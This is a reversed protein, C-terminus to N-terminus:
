RVARILRKTSETTSMSGAVEMTLKSALGQITQHPPECTEKAKMGVEHRICVAQNQAADPLHSHENRKKKM